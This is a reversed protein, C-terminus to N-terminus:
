LLLNSTIEVGPNNLNLFDNILCPALTEKNVKGNWGIAKLNPFFFLMQRKKTREASKKVRLHFIM